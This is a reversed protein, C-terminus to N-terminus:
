KPEESEKCEEENELDGDLFMGLDMELKGNTLACENVVTDGIKKTGGLKDRM